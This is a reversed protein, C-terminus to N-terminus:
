GAPTEGQRLANGAGSECSKLICRSWRGGLMEGGKTTQGLYRGQEM